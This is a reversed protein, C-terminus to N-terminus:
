ASWSGETRLEWNERTSPGGLEAVPFGPLIVTSSRCQVGAGKIEGREETMRDM